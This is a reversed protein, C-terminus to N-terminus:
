SYCTVHSSSQIRPVVITLIIVAKLGVIQLPHCLICLFLGVRSDCTFTKSYIYIYISALLLSITRREQFSVISEMFAGPLCLGPVFSANFTVFAVICEHM